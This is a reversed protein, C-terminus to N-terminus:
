SARLRFEGQLACATDRGVLGFARLMATPPLAAHGEWGVRADSVERGTSRVVDRRRFPGRAFGVIRGNEDVLLVRTVAQREVADWAWGSAKVFASAGEGGVTSQEIMGRCRGPPLVKVRAELQSGVWGAHAPAFISLRQTRLVEAQDRVIDANPHVRRLADHDTVGAVLSTEAGYRMAVYGELGRMLRDQAAATLVACGTLLALTVTGRGSSQRAAHLHILLLLATWFVLAPTGYRSSAAQGFGLQVRGAGTAAASLIVFVICGLLVWERADTRDRRLLAAALLLAAILLGAGGALAAATVTDLQTASLNALKPLPAGIYVAVFTFLDWPRLVADLAWAHGQTPVHTLRFGLCALLAASAITAVQWWPRRALLALLTAIPLVLVGNAMTAMAAAGLICAALTATISTGGLLLLAFCATAFAFVGVFQTQFGWALNEFQYASFVWCLALGLAVTIATGRYRQPGVAIWALLAAHVAQVALIVGVNLVNSGAAFAFDALFGLRPLLILHENHRRFLQTRIQDPTAVELQDWFPMASHSAMLAQVLQVIAFSAAGIAVTAMGLRVTHALRTDLMLDGRGDTTASM